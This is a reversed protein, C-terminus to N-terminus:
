ATSYLVTYGFRNGCLFIVREVGYATNGSNAVVNAAYVPPFSTDKM